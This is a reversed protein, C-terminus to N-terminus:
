LKSLDRFEYVKKIWSLFDIESLVDKSHNCKKCCPVVNEVTYGKLNDVRDMGNYVFDGSNYPSTKINSPKEGCYYCDKSMINIIQKRSLEFSLNRRKANQKYTNIIQNASGVGKGKLKRKRSLENKLCGCSHTIGAKLNDGRIVKVTGCDCQCTWWYERRKSDRNNLKIVSLRGFRKGTLDEM